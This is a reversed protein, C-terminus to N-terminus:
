GSALLSLIAIDGRTPPQIHGSTQGSATKAAMLGAGVTATGALLTKKMFARRDTPRQLKSAGLDKLM